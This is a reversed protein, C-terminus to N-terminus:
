SAKPKQELLAKLAARLKDSEEKLKRHQEYLRQSETHLQELRQMIEEATKPM